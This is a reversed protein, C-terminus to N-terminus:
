VLNNGVNDFQNPTSHGMPFYIFLYIFSDGLLERHKPTPFLVNECWAVIVETAKTRMINYDQNSISGVRM